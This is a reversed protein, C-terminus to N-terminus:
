VKCTECCKCASTGEPCKRGPPKRPGKKMEWPYRKVMEAATPVYKGSSILNASGEEDALGLRDYVAQIWQRQRSSLSTTQKGNDIRTLMSRFAGEEEESLKGSTLLATLMAKDTM